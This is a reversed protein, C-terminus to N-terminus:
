ARRLFSASSQTTSTSTSFAAAAPKADAAERDVRLQDLAVGPAINPIAKLIEKKLYAISTLDSICNCTRRESVSGTQGCIKSGDPWLDELLSATRESM